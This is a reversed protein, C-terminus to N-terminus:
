TRSVCSGLPRGSKEELRTRPQHKDNKEREKHSRFSSKLRHREIMRFRNDKLPLARQQMLSSRLCESMCSFWGNQKLQHWPPPLNVRPLSLCSSSESSYLPLRLVSPLASQPPSPLRGVKQGESGMSPNLQPSTCRTSHGDVSSREWCYLTQKKLRCGFTILPQHSPETPSPM